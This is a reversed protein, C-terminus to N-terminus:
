AETVPATGRPQPQFLLNLLSPAAVGCLPLLGAQHRSSRSALWPHDREVSCLAARALAGVLGTFSLATKLPKGRPRLSTDSPRM